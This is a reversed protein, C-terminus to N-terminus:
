WTMYMRMMPANYSWSCTRVNGFIEAKWKGASFKEGFIKKSIRAFETLEWFM